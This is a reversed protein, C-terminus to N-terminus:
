KSKIDLAKEIVQKFRWAAISVITSVCIILLGVAIGGAADDEPQVIFLYVIPATVFAILVLACRKITRLAKITSDSFTKNQKTYELVKVIQYLAIFFAISATYAYVLFPDKFYVEFATANVNRGEFHPEVLLFIFIVVGFLITLGQLFLISVRKVVENKKGYLDLLPLLAVWVCTIYLWTNEYSTDKFLLASVIIAVSVVLSLIIKLTESNM